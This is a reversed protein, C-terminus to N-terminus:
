PLQRVAAQEAGVFRIITVEYDEQRLRAAEQKAEEESLSDSCPGGGMVIQHGKSRPNLAEELRQLRHELSSM